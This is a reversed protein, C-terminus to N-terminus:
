GSIIKDSTFTLSNPFYRGSIHSKIFRGNTCTGNEMVVIQLPFVYICRQYYHSKLTSTIEFSPINETGKGWYSCLIGQPDWM